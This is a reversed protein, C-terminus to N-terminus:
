QIIININNQTNIRENSQAVLFDTTIITCVPSIGNIFAGDLLPATITLTSGLITIGFSYPNLALANGLNTAIISTTTDADTITYDGLTINGLIPDNITVIIKQGFDGVTNITITATASVPQIDPFEAWQWRLADTVTAITTPATFAFRKGFLSSNTQYNASLPVSIDGLEIIEQITLKAM